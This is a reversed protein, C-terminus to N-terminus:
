PKPRKGAAWPRPRSPAASTRAAAPRCAPDSQPYAELDFYVITGSGDPLALGLDIAVAVASDAEAVGQTYAVALDNSIRHDECRTPSWCASQPGVWTPIFRWGQQSAQTVFGATLGSNACARCSGGIYLNVAGYPSSTKWTQLEDLTAIECKDFGHGVWWRTQGALSSDALTPSEGMDPDAGGAMAQSSDAEPLPLASWSKGGDETRLLLM